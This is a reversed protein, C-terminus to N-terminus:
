LSLPRKAPSPEPSPVAQGLAWRERAVLWPHLFLADYDPPALRAILSTLSNLQPDGLSPDPISIVSSPEINLSEAFSRLCAGLTGFGRLREEPNLFHSGYRPRAGRVGRLGLLGNPLELIPGARDWLLALREAPTAGQRAWKQFEHDLLGGLRALASEGDFVTAAAELQAMANQWALASRGRSLSPSQALSGAEFTLACRGLDGISGAPEFHLELRLLASLGTPATM